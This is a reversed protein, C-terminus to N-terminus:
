MTYFEDVTLNGGPGYLYNTDGVLVEMPIFEIHPLGTVVATSLDATADTFLQYGM